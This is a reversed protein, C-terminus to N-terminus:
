LKKRMRVAHDRFGLRDYLAHARANKVLVGIVATTHGRGRAVDEIAAILRSGVGQGRLTEAVSLEAIYFYRSRSEPDDVEYGAIMGCLAGDRSAVLMAGDNERVSELTQELYWEGFARDPIAHDPAYQMEFRQLAIILDIVGDRDSPVFDRITTDVLPDGV